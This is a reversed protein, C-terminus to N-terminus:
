RLKFLDSFRNEEDKVFLMRAKITAEIAQNTQTANLVMSSQSSNPIERSLHFSSMNKILRTRGIKIIHNEKLTYKDANGCVLIM